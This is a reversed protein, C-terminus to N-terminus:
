QFVNKPNPNILWKHLYFTDVMGYVPHNFAAPTSGSKVFGLSEWLKLAPNVSVVSYAEMARYGKKRCEEIVFSALQRGIGLGRAVPAVMLDFNAIHCGNGYRMPKTQMAAVIISRGEDTRMDAVYVASGAPELWIKKAVAETSDLPYPHTEGASVIESWFPWIAEWDSHIAPRFTVEGKLLSTSSTVM